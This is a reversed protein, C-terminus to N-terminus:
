VYRSMNGQTNSAMKVMTTKQSGGSVGDLIMKPIFM